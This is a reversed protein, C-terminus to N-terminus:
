LVELIGERAIRFESAELLPFMDDPYHILRTRDTWNEAMPNGSRGQIYKALTDYNTHIGHGVEHIILDAKSTNNKPGYCLWRWLEPDFSTDCSYAMQAGANWVRFASTPVSHMTKKVRLVMGDNFGGEKPMLEVNEGETIPIIDFFDEMSGLDKICELFRPIGDIVEPLAVLKLKRGLAIKFFAAITELGGAHDAHLHTLILTGVRHLDLGHYQGKDAERMMKRISQPCDVLILENDWAPNQYRSILLCTPHHMASFADGVGLPLVSLGIRGLNLDKM